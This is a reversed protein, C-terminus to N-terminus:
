SALKTKVWNVLYKDDNTWENFGNTTDIVYLRTDIIKDYEDFLMVTISAKIFPVYETVRLIAKVIKKTININPFVNFSCIESM